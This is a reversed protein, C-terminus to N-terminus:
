LGKEKKYIELLEKSTLCNKANPLFNTWEGHSIQSAKDDCWEAFGIVYNDAIQECRDIKSEERAIEYVFLINKFQERLKM